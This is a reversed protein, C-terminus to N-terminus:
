NAGGKVTAYAAFIDNTANTMANSSITATAIQAQSGDFTEATLGEFGAKYAAEDMGAFNAFYEKHFILEDATLKVIAGNDDLICYVGMPENGYGFIRSVIGINGGVKYVGTVSNFIGDMSMESVMVGGGLAEFKSVEKDKNAGVTTAAVAEAALDANAETVDNGETDYVKVCGAANVVALVDGNMIYAAGTGNAPTLATIINGTGATETVQLIGDAALGSHVVPILERLLQDASKQAEAVLGNAALVAFADTVADKYAVSSYTCGAVLQVDALTSNQGVYSQPYEAGFDKSETYVDLTMGSIVGAADVGFTFQMPEASYQSTAACQVAYGLGSTEKHIAVVTEPVDALAAMDMAEFGKADPLVAMLAGSAQAAANEAIIPGTVVNLGLIAAGFVVVIALLVAVSKMFDTKKAMM